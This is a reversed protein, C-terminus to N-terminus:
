IKLSTIKSIGDENMSVGYLNDAEGIVSDNHSIVIYQAGNCYSRVLQALKESNHKDLAADVEDLIYFSGPEHEQIAFIFALATMTKEGGSLGRIDMFKKGSLKVKIAVGAEFPNAKNELELFADGKTSLAHFKNIFNKNVVDFTNMFLEKKKGEIEEMMNMVNEKENTLINKKDILKHFEIEVETYIELARMNIGGLNDKMKEFDNIEKKLEEETKTILVQAIVPPEWENTPLSFTATTGGNIAESLLM